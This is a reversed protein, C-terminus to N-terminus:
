RTGAVFACAISPLSSGRTSPLELRVRQPPALHARRSGIIASDPHEVHQMNCKDGLEVHLVVQVMQFHASQQLM